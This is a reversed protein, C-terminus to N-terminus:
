RSAGENCEVRAAMAPRLESQSGEVRLYVALTAKARDLRPALREVEAILPQEPRADLSVACRQGSRVSGLKAEAVDAVVRLSHADYLEILSPQLPGALQGDGAPPAAVVADFPARLLYADRELGVRKARAESSRVEFKEARINKALQTHEARRRRLTELSLVSEDVLRQEHALLREVEVQEARRVALKARSARAEARAVHIDQELWSADLEVLVDGQKVRQGERVHVKAIPATVRATLKAERTAEVRGVAVWARRGAPQPAAAEAVSAPPPSEHSRRGTIFSRVGLGAVSVGLALSLAVWTRRRRATPAAAAESREIRLGALRQRLESNEVAM